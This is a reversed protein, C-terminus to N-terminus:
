RKKRLSRDVHWRVRMKDGMAAAGQRVKHDFDFNLKKSLNFESAVTGEWLRKERLKAFPSLAGCDYCM